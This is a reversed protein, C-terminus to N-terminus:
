ELQQLPSSDTTIVAATQTTRPSVSQHRLRGHRQETTIVDDNDDSLMEVDSDRDRRRNSVGTTEHASSNNCNNHVGAWRLRADM